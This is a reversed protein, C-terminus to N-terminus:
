KKGIEMITENKINIEEQINNQLTDECDKKEILSVGEFKIEQKELDDVIENKVEIQDNKLLCFKNEPDFEVFEECVDECNTIM